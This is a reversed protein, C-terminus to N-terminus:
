NHVNDKEERHRVSLANFTPAIIATILGWLLVASIARYFVLDFIIMPGAGAIISFRGVVTGFLAVGSRPHLNAKDLISPDRLSYGLFLIGALVSEFIITDRHGDVEVPGGAHILVASLLFAVAEAFLFTRTQLLPQDNKMETLIWGVIPLAEKILCRNIM